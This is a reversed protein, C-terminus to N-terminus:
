RGSAQLVVLITKILVKLDTLVSMKEKYDMDYKLREVMESINEAYGYKIQGWSTIGPKINLLVLYHPAIEVIQNIYFEREPRPGVLSMTGTFVTFLQPIEDLRIKRLFKGFGTIRPDDKSSLQPGNLESNLYMTRFKIMQFLKGNEGVRQQKYLVPGKSNLKIGIATLLYVPSLIIIAIFSILIDMGRKIWQQWIPMLHVSVKVQPLYILRSELTRPKLFVEITQIEKVALNPSDIEPYMRIM